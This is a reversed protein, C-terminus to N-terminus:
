TWSKNSNKLLIAAFRDNLGGHIQAQNQYFRHVLDGIKQDAPVYKDIAFPRNPLDQPFREDVITPKGEEILKPSPLSLYPKGELDTQVPADAAQQLGNANPFLGYLSDFSHNELYIVVIHQIDNADSKKHNLTTCGSLFSSSAWCLFLCLMFRM